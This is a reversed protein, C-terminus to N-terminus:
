QAASRRTVIQVACAVAPNRHGGQFTMKQASEALRHSLLRRASLLKGRVEGSAVGALPFSPAAGLIHRDGSNMSSALRLSGHETVFGWPHIILGKRTDQASDGFSITPMVRQDKGMETIPAAVRIKWTVHVFAGAGQDREANLVAIVDANPC